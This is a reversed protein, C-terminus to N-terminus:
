DTSHQFRLSTHGFQVLLDIGLMEADREKTDCAGYAPDIFIITISNTKEEITGAVTLAYKKLGDPFQLGVFKANKEKITKIVKELEFDYEDM